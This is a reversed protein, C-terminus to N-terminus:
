LKNEKEVELDQITIFELQQQAQTKSKYFTIKKYPTLNNKWTALNQLLNQMNTAILYANQNADIYCIPNPASLDTFQGITGIYGGNSDTAIIDIQPITYFNINPIQDEFIFHLDYDEAIQKYQENKDSIPMANITTGARIVQTDRIFIGICKHNETEDFYVKKM